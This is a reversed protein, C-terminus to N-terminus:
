PIPSGGLMLSNEKPGKPKPDRLWPIHGAILTNPVWFKPTCVNITGVPPIKPRLPKPKLTKLRSEAYLGTPTSPRFARGWVLMSASM